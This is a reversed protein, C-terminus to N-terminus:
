TVRLNIVTNVIAQWQNRDQVLNIWDLIECLYMITNDEWRRTLRGLPM